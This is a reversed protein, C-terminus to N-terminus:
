KRKQKPNWFACYKEYKGIDAIIYVEDNKENLELYDIIGIPITIAYSGVIKILNRKISFGRPNIESM